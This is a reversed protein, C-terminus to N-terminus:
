DVQFNPFIRPRLNQGQSDSKSSAKRSVFASNQDKLAKVLNDFKNFVGFTGNLKDKGAFCMRAIILAFAIDLINNVATFEGFQIAM